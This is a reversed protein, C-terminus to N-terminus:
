FLQNWNAEAESQPLGSVYITTGASPLRDRNITVLFYMGSPAVNGNPPATVLLDDGGQHSFELSILRQDANFAHTVSGCRVMVVRIIDPAQTTRLTFQSGTQWRDPAALIEPRDPRDYYWPEYIEITLNAASIGASADKDSGATWVRGDPMLLAVSHYNRVVQQREAPATLASWKGSRPNYIEPTQVGSVDLAADTPPVGAVGGVHLIEGTPLIVCLGNIRRPNGALARPATHKWGLSDSPTTGPQWDGMDLIWPTEGGSVLIRPRFGDKHELPLLVSSEGWALYRNDRGPTFECVDFFAASWPSTGVRMTTTRGRAPSVLIVDGTPLLHARPYYSVTHDRFLQDQPPDSFSGLRHWRGNPGPTATFVEPIYNDHERDGERPHGSIALVDGNALTLLTPYWRGGTEERNHNEAPLGLNMFATRNSAFGSNDFRFVASDRLGPFHEHHLGAGAAGEPFAYTGGAALLTGNVTLAHGSCFLDFLNFSVQEVTLSSCNFLRMADIKGTKSFDPDHQDGGFFLIRDFNLFAAHVALIESDILTPDWPM